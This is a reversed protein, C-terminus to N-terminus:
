GDIAPEGCFGQRAALMFSAIVTVLVTSYCRLLLSIVADPALRRARKCLHSTTPAANAGFIIWRSFNADYQWNILAL